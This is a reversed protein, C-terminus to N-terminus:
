RRGNRGVQPSKELKKQRREQRLAEETKKTPKTTCRHGKPCQVLSARAFTDCPATNCRNCYWRVLGAPVSGHVSM